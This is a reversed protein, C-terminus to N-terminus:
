FSNSKKNNIDAPLVQLNWPVHLGCVSKGNIPVIHDVQYRQGSIKELDKALWYFDQIEKKQNESLWIPARQKRRYTKLMDWLLHKLPQKKRYDRKYERISEKNEEVWLKKRRKSAEPDQWYQNKNYLKQSVYTKRRASRCTKCSANLGDPSLLRKHFDQELKELRCLSCFKV